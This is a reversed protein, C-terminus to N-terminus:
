PDEADIGLRNRPNQGIKKYSRRKTVQHPQECGWTALSSGHLITRNNGVIDCPMPVTMGSTHNLYTLCSNSHQLSVAEELYAFLEDLM